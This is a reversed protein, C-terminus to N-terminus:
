MRILYITIAQSRIVWIQDVLDFRASVEGQFWLWGGSWIRGNPLLIYIHINIIKSSRCRPFRSSRALTLRELNMGIRVDSLPGGEKTSKTRVLVLEGMRLQYVFRLGWSLKGRHHHHNLYKPMSWIFWCRIVFSLEISLYTCLWLMLRFCFEQCTLNM